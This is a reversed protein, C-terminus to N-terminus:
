VKPMAGDMFIREAVGLKWSGFFFNDRFAEGATGGLTELTGVVVSKALLSATEPKRRREYDLLAESLRGGYEGGNLLALCDALCYADQTTVRPRRPSRLVGHPIAILHTHIKQPRAPPLLPPPPHSPEAVGTRPIHVDHHAREAGPLNAYDVGTGPASFSRSMTNTDLDADVPGTCWPKPGPPWRGLEGEIYGEGGTSKRRPTASIGNESIRRRARLALRRWM